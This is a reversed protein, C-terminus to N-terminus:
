WGGSAEFRKAAARDILDVRHTVEQSFIRWQGARRECVYRARSVTYDGSYRGDFAVRRSIAKVGVVQRNGRVPGRRWERLTTSYKPCPGFLGVDSWKGRGSGPWKTFGDPWTLREVAENEQCDAADRWAEILRVCSGPAAASATAGLALCLLPVAKLM